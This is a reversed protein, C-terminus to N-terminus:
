ILSIYMYKYRIYECKVITANNIVYTEIIKNCIYTIEKYEDKYNNLDVLGCCERLLLM